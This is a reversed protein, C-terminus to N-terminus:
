FSKQKLSNLIDSLSRKRKRRRKEPPTVGSSIHMPAGLPTVGGSVQVPSGVQSTPMDLASDEKFTRRQPATIKM